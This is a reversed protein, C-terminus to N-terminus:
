CCLGESSLECCLREADGRLVGALAPMAYPMLTEAVKECEM